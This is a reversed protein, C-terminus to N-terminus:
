PIMCDVLVVDLLCFVFVGLGLGVLRASQSAEESQLSPLGVAAKRNSNDVARVTWRRGADRMNDRAHKELLSETGKSRRELLGFM